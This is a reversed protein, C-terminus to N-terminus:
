SANPRDSLRATIANLIARIYWAPPGEPDADQLRQRYETALDALRSPALDPPLVNVSNHRDHM